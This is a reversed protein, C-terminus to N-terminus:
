AIWPFSRGDGSGAPALLLNSPKVDRHVLGAAHVHALGRAADLVVALAAAAAFPGRDHLWAAADVGEVLELAVWLRGDADGADYVQVLNPHNLRALARAEDGLRAALCDDDPGRLLDVVKMAVRRGLRTQRAEYVVGMGGRGLERLVQYGSVIPVGRPASSTLARTAQEDRPM